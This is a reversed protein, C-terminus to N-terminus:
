SVIVPSCIRELKRINYSLHSVVSIRKPTAVRLSRTRRDASGFKTRAHAKTSPVVPMGATGKQDEKLKEMHARRALGQQHKKGQTHALYNAEDRHLTLCLKCEYSGLHNRVLYPDKALDISELALKKLRDKRQGVGGGGFKSGVRNQRDTGGRIRFRLQLTHEQQAQESSFCFNEDSLVKGEHVLYANEMLRRRKSGSRHADIEECREREDAAIFGDRIGCTDVVRSLFEEYNKSPSVDDGDESGWTLAATRGSPTAVLFQLPRNSAVSTTMTFDISCCFLLIYLQM